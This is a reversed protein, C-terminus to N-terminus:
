ATKIAICMWNITDDTDSFKNDLWLSTRNILRFALKNHIGREVLHNLFIQGILAYVGGCPTINKIGFGNQSLYEILGYRTFRLFDYPVEHHRWQMPASLILVGNPKLLRHCETLYFHVDPVHELTQTSLITDISEDHLPLPHNPLIEIDPAVNEAAAVDAGIYKTIKSEFFARYPQGGCGFDLMVGKAAPLAQKEMWAYLLSLVIYNHDDSRVNMDKIRIVGQLDDKIDTKLM